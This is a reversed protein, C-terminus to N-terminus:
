FGIRIGGTLGWNQATRGQIDFATADKFNFKGVYDKAMLRIAVTPAVQYDFGIGANYAVNTASTNLFNAASVKYTAAGVGVQVFPTIPSRAGASGTPIDLQLGGDYLWVGASGVGVGGVFPVGVQLDTSSYAVNGIVSVNPTIKMGLQAGYMPANKMSLSTGVPGKLFDGFIMYGAYPTVEVLTGNTPPRLVPQQARATSTLGVLGALATTIVLRGIM